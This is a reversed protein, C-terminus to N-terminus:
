EAQNDMFKWLSSLHRCCRQLKIMIPVCWLYLSAVLVMLQVLVVFYWRVLKHNTDIHWLENPGEVNYVRRHLLGRKRASVGADDVRHISERLRVRPVRIGKEVLFQKIM